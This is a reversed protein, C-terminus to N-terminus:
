TRVRKSKPRCSSSCSGTIATRSRNRLHLSRDYEKAFAASNSKAWKTVIYAFILAKKESESVERKTKVEWKSIVPKSDYDQVLAGGLCSRVEKLKYAEEKRKLFDGIELIRMDKKTKFIELAEPEFGPAILVEVFVNKEKVIFEAM